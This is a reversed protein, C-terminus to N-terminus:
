GKMIGMAAAARTAAAEGRHQLLLAVARCSPQHQPAAAAKHHQARLRQSSTELQLGFLHIRNEALVRKAVPALATQKTLGEAIFQKPVLGAM